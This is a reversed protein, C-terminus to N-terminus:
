NIPVVMKAYLLLFVENALWYITTDFFTATRFGLKWVKYNYCYEKRRIITIIKTKHPLKIIIMFICWVNIFLTIFHIYFTYLRFPYHLYFSLFHLHLINISLPLSIWFVPEFINTINLHQIHYFTSDLNDIKIELM